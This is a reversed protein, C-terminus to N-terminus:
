GGHAGTLHLLPPIQPSPSPTAVWPRPAPAQALTAGLWPPDLPIANRDGIVQNRHRPGLCGYREPNTQTFLGLCPVGSAAALHLPGTDASIFLRLDQTFRVLEVLNPLALQCDGLAPMPDAPDTLQILLADPCHRRLDWLLRQWQSQSLGKGKRAGTFFGVFPRGPYAEALATLPASPGPAGGLVIPDALSAQRGLLQLPQHAYHRSDDPALPQEFLLDGNADDFGLKEAGRVWAAILHDTSSAFPVYVRDYHQRRLRWLAPLATLLHKGQLRLLHLRQLRCQAFFPLLPGGSCVLEIEAKPHASRLAHLFPLLFLNNGIRNTSRIVLIRRAAPQPGPLKGRRALWALFARELGQTWCRRRGDFRRLADRLTSM